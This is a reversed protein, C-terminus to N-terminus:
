DLSLSMKSRKNEYMLMDVLKIFEETKLGSSYDYVARGMAFKLNFPYEESSNLTDVCSNIHNVLSELSKNDYNDLLLCFEDGGFRIVYDKPAVCKSLLNASAKLALDGMEHGFVDNIQKFQDIDLMVLAFTRNVSANKIKKKLVSELRKRNGISTLYDTHICDDKMNLLVILLSLVISNLVFSIGYFCVQLIIGVLPPLPFVTLSLLQNKGLVEKNREVIILAAVVLLITIIASYIFYPGRHYINNSDIFYYWGTFQTLVVMATNAVNLALLPLILKKTKTEDHSIQFTVYMVLFSPVVPNLLYLLFNGVHNFLPYYSDPKGDARSLIDLVLMFMTIFLIMIYLRSQMTKEEARRISHFCLISLLLISFGDLILNFFLDM